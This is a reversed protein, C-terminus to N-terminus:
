RNQDLIDLSSALDNMTGTSLETRTEPKQPISGLTHYKPDREKDTKHQFQWLYLRSKTIYNVFSEVAFSFPRGNFKYFALALAFLLVPIAVVIGVFGPLFRKLMYALGVGGVLYIFQVFTLPGFIKDKVEIFQPVEYRM